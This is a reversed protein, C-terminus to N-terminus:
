KDIINTIQLIQLLFLTGGTRSLLPKMINLLEDKDAFTYISLSLFCHQFLEGFIWLIRHNM